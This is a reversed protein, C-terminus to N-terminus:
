PRTRKSRSEWKGSLGLLLTPVTLVLAWAVRRSRQEGCVAVQFTEEVENSTMTSKRDLYNVVDFGEGSDDKDVDEFMGIPYKTTPGVAPGCIFAEGDYERANVSFSGLTPLVLLLVIIVGGIWVSVTKGRGGSAPEEDTSPGTSSTPSNDAQESM